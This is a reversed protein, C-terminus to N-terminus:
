FSSYHCNVSAKQVFPTRSVGQQSAWAGLPDTDLYIVVLRDETKLPAETLACGSINAKSSIDAWHIVHKQRANGSILGMEV